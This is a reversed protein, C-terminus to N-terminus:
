HLVSKQVTSLQRVANIIAKKDFGCEQYLEKQEGHEIWKDPIGLRMINTQYHNDIMFEAVASGFGGL